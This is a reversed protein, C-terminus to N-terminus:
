KGGLELARRYAAEIAEVIAARVGARELALLGAATTGGPSVVQGRLEAPHRGTAEAYRVSGLVTQYVLRTAVERRLGIHVAGDVFAELLLFVFGPGSGSVATAMEVYKEDEVFVEQGLAGLVRRVADLAEADLTPYATWVTIGEGIQAPTNPMARAVRDTGLAATITALRVGAMISLVTRQGLRGALPAAATPFEQPKVAFVVLGASDVAQTSDAFTEVGHREALYRRREDLVECIALDAAAVIGRRLLANVMAEGMVGGGIIAIKM